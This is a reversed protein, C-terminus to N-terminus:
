GNGCVRIIEHFNMTIVLASQETGRLKAEERYSNKFVLGLRTLAHIVEIEDIDKNERSMFILTFDRLYQNSGTAPLINGKENYVFFSSHQNIEDKNLDVSFIPFGFSDLVKILKEQNVRNSVTM